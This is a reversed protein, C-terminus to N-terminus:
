ERVRPFDQRSATMAFSSKWIIGSIVAGTSYALVDMLDGTAHRVFHPGIWEFLISWGILHSLIEPWSPSHDHDRLRLSRELGLLIPLAAPILLSDSLWSHVWSVHCHPKILWRNIVYAVCAALCLPDLAYRFRRVADLPHRHWVSRRCCSELTPHDNRPEALAVQLNQCISDAKKGM